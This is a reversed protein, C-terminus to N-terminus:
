RFPLRVSLPFGRARIGTLHTKGVVDELVGAPALARGHKKPSGCTRVGM